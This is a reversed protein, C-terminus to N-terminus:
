RARRRGARGVQDAAEGAGVAREGDGVHGRSESEARGDGALGQLAEAPLSAHELALESRGPGAGLPAVGLHQPHQAPTRQGPEPLLDLRDLGGREAAEQERPLVDVPGLATAQAADVTTSWTTSWSAPHAAGAEAQLRQDQGGPHGVVLRREEVLQGGGALHDPDPVARQGAGVAPDREVEAVLRWQGQRQGVEGEVLGVAPALDM